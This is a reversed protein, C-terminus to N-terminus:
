VTDHRIIYVGNRCRLGIQYPDNTHRVSLCVSPIAIVIAHTERRASFITDISFIEMM